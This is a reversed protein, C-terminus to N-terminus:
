ALQRQCCFSRGQLASAYWVNKTGIDKLMANDLMLEALLKKLGEDELTWHRRGTTCTAESICHKRAM